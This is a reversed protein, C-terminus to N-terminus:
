PCRQARQASSAQSLHDFAIAPLRAQKGFPQAACAYAHEVIYNEILNEHREAARFLSPADNCFNLSVSGAPAAASDPLVLGRHPNRYRTPRSGVFVNFATGVGHDPNRLGDLCASFDKMPCKFSRGM